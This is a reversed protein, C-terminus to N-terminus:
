KPTESAQESATEHPQNSEGEAARPKESPESEAREVKERVQEAKDPESNKEFAEIARKWADIAAPRDDTKNIADGLHDLVM